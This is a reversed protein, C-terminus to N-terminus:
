SRKGNSLGAGDEDSGAIEAPGTGAKSDAIMRLTQEDMGFHHAVEHYVVERIEQEIEGWSRCRAEIPKQFITIKDPLVMGYGRDRRTHPVGEYLGLLGFRSRIKTKALQLHTPWDTVVVDINELNYRFGPPLGEIAKLVLSHFRTRRMASGIGLSRSTGTKTVPLHDESM